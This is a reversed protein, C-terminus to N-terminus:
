QSEAPNKDFELEVFRSSWVNLKIPEFSIILNPHHMAPLVKKPDLGTKHLHLTLPCSRKLLIKTLYSHSPEVFQQCLKTSSLNLVRLTPCAAVMDWLQNPTPMDRMKLLHLEELHPLKHCITHLLQTEIDDDQLVLRRLNSMRQLADTVRESSWFSDHFVLSRVMLPQQKAVTGLLHEHYDRTYFALRRFSPLPLLRPLVNGLLHHDDIVLEQLTNCKAIDEVGTDLNVNYGYYLLTLKTLKLTSFIKQFASTDLYECWNLHLEQLKEFRWLHVGTTSSSLTLHVLHPFLVTLLLTEEEGYDLNYEMDCDLTHVQPFSWSTWQQLLDMTGRVIKLKQVTGSWCQLCDGMAAKNLRFTEIVDGDLTVSKLHRWYYQVYTHIRNSVRTLSLQDRMPLFPLINLWIDENLSEM